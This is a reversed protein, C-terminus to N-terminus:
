STQSAPLGAQIIGHIVKATQEEGQNYIVDEFNRCKAVAKYENIGKRAKRGAHGYQEVLLEEVDTWFQKEAQKRTTTKSM